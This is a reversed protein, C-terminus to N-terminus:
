LFTEFFYCLEAGFGRNGPLLVFVDYCVPAHLFLRHFFSDLPTHRGFKELKLADVSDEDDEEKGSNLSGNQALKLRKDKQRKRNRDLKRDFTTEGGGGGGGGGGGRRGENLKRNRAM